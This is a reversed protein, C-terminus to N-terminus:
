WEAETRDTTAPVSTSPRSAATAGPGASRTTRWRRPQRAGSCGSPVERGPRGVTFV